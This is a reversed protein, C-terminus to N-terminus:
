AAPALAMRIRVQIEDAVTAPDAWEGEGIHYDLRKVAFSGEAVRIGKSDAKVAFPVVCDRTIGKMSLKGAIEYRGGGLDKFSTSAFHAVPFKKTDFWLPGQAEADSEPSALDVSTLDVDINAKSRALAQPDFVVDAKWKRFRGDFKVGMQKMTFGIDSREVAIGDARVAGAALVVACLVLQVARHAKM